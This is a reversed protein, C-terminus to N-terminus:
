LEIIRREKASEMAAEIIKMNLLADEPTVEPEKQENITAYVDDYFSMYKGPLTAYRIRTEKSYANSNLIGWYKKPDNGFNKSNPIKGAKLAAEQSDIGYKIFSGSTVHVQYRPGPEKVFVSAKLTVAHSHYLLKLDFSDNVKSGKRQYYLLCFVSLPAGFLAIAQDILHPGLDFLTGGGNEQSYRWEARTVLPTYRDFHSEFEIIKGLYGENIIHRITLFDGDWRRNHYPFIRKGYKKSIEIVKYFDHSNMAVPKEIVVHKGKELAMAAQEAHILHPTCIVVLEIEPNNILSLFDNFVKAKPYNQKAVNGSSVISHLKFGNHISIFPAHFVRGSLGFGVIGTKIKKKPPM